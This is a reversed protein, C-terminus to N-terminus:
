ITTTFGLGKVDEFQEVKTFVQLQLIWGVEFPWCVCYRVKWGTCLRVRFELTRRVSDMTM